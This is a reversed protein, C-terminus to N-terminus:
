LGLRARISTVADPAPLTADVTLATVPRELTAFQSPLLSAPMFHGSRGQLRPELARADGQLHIFRTFGLEPALVDRYAQRLASCALITKRGAAAQAVLHARMAALWPARDTDNLATGSRLKAVNAAPHFDDGESFDWGLAAALAQGVTSKGSGAVGMVILTHVPKLLWPQDRAPDRDEDIEILDFFVEIGRNALGLELCRNRLLESRDDHWGIKSVFRNWMTCATDDRRGARREVEALVEEDAIGSAVLPVLDAHRIGLFGCCRGDFVTPRADGYNDHFDPPLTGAAHLRIKDLMRGFYVLRGVLAYPSRLGPVFPM